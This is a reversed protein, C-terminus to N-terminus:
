SHTPASIAELQDQEHIMQVWSLLYEIDENYLGIRASERVIYVVLAEILYRTIDDIPGPELWSAGNGPDFYDTGKRPEFIDTRKGPDFYQVRNDPVTFINSKKYMTIMNQLLVTLESAKKALSQMEITNMTQVFYM